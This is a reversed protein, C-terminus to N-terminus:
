KEPLPRPPAAPPPSAPEAKTRLEIDLDLNNKLEFPQRYLPQLAQLVEILYAGREVGQFSFAGDADTMTIQEPKHSRRPPALRVTLGPVGRQNTEDLVHGRVEFTEQPSGLASGLNCIFWSLGLAVLSVLSKTMM